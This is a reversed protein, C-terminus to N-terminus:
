KLLLMKRAVKVEGARLEYFYVGSSVDRADFAIRHEGAIFQEDALTRVLRGTVDYVQLTASMARPLSFVIETAANFPNPYNQALTIESVLPATPPKVSSFTEDIYQGFVQQYSRSDEWFCFFQDSNTGRAIAPAYQERLTDCILGGDAWYADTVVGNADLHKARVVSEGFEPEFGYATIIGGAGDVISSHRFVLRQGTNMPVGDEGLLRELSSNYKNAYLANDIGGTHKGYLLWLGNDYLLTVPNLMMDSLYTAMLVGNHALQPVGSSTLKQGYIDPIHGASREDLWAAYVMGNEDSIVADFDNYPDASNCVDTTWLFSRDHHVRSVSRVEGEPSWLVVCDGDPMAAADALTGSTGDAILLPLGWDTELLSDLLMVKTQYGFGPVREMWVAYFRGNTSEVCRPIMDPYDTEVEGVELEAVRNGDAGIHAAQLYGFDGVEWGHLLFFGGSGDSCVDFRTTNGGTSNQFVPRGNPELESQGSSNVFQYYINPQYRTDQWIVASRNNPLSVARVENVTGSYGGTWARGEVPPLREGNNMNFHTSKVVNSDLYTHWSCTIHEPNGVAMVVNSINEEIPVVSVGCADGWMQEGSASLRTLRTEYQQSQGRWFEMLAVVGGTHDSVIEVSPGAVVNATGCLPVGNNEWMPVGAASIKQVRMGGSDAPLNPTEVWGAIVGSSQNGSVNTMLRLGNGRTWNSDVIVPSPWLPSGDEAYRQMKLAQANVSDNAWAVYCGEGEVSELALAENYLTGLRFVYEWEVLGAFTYKTLRYYQENVGLYESLGLYWNGGSDVDMGWSTSLSGEHTLMLPEHWLMEGDSEVGNVFLVFQEFYFDWNGYAFYISGDDFVNVDHYVGTYTIEDCVRVGTGDNQPWVANGNEDIALMFLDRGNTYGNPRSFCLLFSQQWPYVQVASEKLPSAVLRRGRQEWVPAGNADLLQGWIDGQGFEYDIWVVLSTGNPHAASASISVPGEGRIMRGTPEWMRPDALAVTGLAWILIATGLRM